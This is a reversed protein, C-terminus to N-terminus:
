KDSRELASSSNESKHFLILPYQGIRGFLRPAMEELWFLLRLCFSGLAKRHIFARLFKTSVTRWVRIDLGPLPKLTNKIWGYDHKYTFTGPSRILEKAEPKFNELPQVAERGAGLRRNLGKLLRTMWDIPRDLIRMLPSHEGWTYVIACSGGPKLLAYLGFFAEKHEGPPLHHVTHLSVIGEFVGWKFPLCAIDAVVYLGRDGLRERAEKLALISIDLCVRYRYGKSYELYEPYQIPGSGADLLYVGELPLFRAVRLHCGHIYERSVPRLDEYRANQYVGEGIQKWGVSNYFDRVQRKIEGEAIM